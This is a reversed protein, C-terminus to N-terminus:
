PVAVFDARRNQAWSLEDHGFLLMKEEGYSVTSLKAEDVGLNMLYKKASLARREGLAMNYENTGRPDTNGEIRVSLENNNKCFEANVEIRAVQDSRIDSSDFNFYVPLMGETTRGEGIELPKSDLSETEGMAEGQDVAKMGEDTDTKSGCGSLSVVSAFLLVPLLMRVSKLM